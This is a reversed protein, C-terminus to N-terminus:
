AQLNPWIEDIVHVPVRDHEINFFVDKSDGNSGIYQKANLEPHCSKM